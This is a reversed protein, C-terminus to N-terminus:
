QIYFGVNINCHITFGSHHLVAKKYKGIGEFATDIQTDRVNNSSIILKILLREHPLSDMGKPITRERIIVSEYAIGLFEFPLNTKKRHYIRFPIQNTVGDRLQHDLLGQNQGSYFVEYSYSSTTVNRLVKDSYWYSNDSSITGIEGTLCVVSEM